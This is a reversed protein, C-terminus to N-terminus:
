GFLFGIVAGIIGEILNPEPAEAVQVELDAPAPAPEVATTVAASATSAVKAALMRSRTAATEELTLRAALDVRWPLATVVTADGDIGAKSTPRAPTEVAVV